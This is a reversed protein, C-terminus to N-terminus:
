EIEDRESWLYGEGTGNYVGFLPFAFSAPRAPPEPQVVIPAKAARHMERRRLASRHLAALRSQVGRAMAACRDFLSPLQAEWRSRQRKWSLDAAWDMLWNGLWLCGYIGYCFVVLGCAEPLLLFSWPGEDEFALDPLDQRLTAALFQEPPGVALGKWGADLASQSLRMGTGDESDVM